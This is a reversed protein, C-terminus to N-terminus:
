YGQNQTLNPNTSIASYPIPYVNYISNVGSGEYTGGKWDWVYASSTFVGHRILDSRRRGEFYFERCWEDLIDQKSISQEFEAANARKRLENLDAKAKDTEGLNFYAEARTLYAEAVRFLPVDTDSLTVDSPTGGTAYTNSWKLIAFGSTFTTKDKTSYTRSADVFLLARDDKAYTAFEHASYSKNSLNEGDSIFHDVLAQRARNCTWQSSPLSQDPTGSGLTSAIPYASGGYSRSTAGDCRIPFIIEQRANPNEGNDGMFLQEYASYGNLATQNLKYKSEIVETSYDAAKQYQATGTYVEANLYLRALLLKAATKDARGYNSDDGAYDLLQEDAETNIIDELEAVIINFLEEGRKEVPDSADVNTKYPAEGYLDLFYYNMLARIFRVEARYQKSTADSKGSTIDLYSNCLTVNYALRYYTLENYGHSSDWTINTLEPIGADSQWAWICEDSCLENAEFIRRYMASNGEDFQKMDANGAGGKQGTLVLSSYVKALLGIENVTTNTQPDPNSQDLDNICSTMNLGIFAALALPLTKNFINLKM